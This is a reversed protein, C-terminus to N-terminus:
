GRDGADEASLPSPISLRVALEYARHKWNFERIVRDRGKRGMEACTEPHDLLFRLRLALEEPDEPDVLWGTEGDLVAAGTGGSRGAIAPKEAAAAEIFSIGFGEISDTVEPVERNPMVYIDALRYYDPLEEDGVRGAFHVREAIGYERALSELRARDEGGGAIVYNVDHRDALIKLARLVLDHGKRKTLRSVTLLVPKGALRYKEVLHEPRPGPTFVDADTGPVIEVIRERPIGYELFERTTDPSNTVLYRCERILLRVLWRSKRYAASTEGGYVWLFCPIGFIKQFGLGIPGCSLIQGAHIERVRRFFVLYKACAAMTFFSLIKGIVGRGSAPFRLVRRGSRRDFAEAGDARPTLVLMTDAPYFKWLHFFVASIGGPVPPYDNTLLLSRKVPM